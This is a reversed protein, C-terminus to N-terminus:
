CQPMTIIRAYPPEEGLALSALVQLGQLRVGEGESLPRSAFSHDHAKGDSKNGAKNLTLRVVPELVGAAVAAEKKLPHGVFENKLARLASM